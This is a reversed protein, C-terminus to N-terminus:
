RRGKAAMAALIRRRTVGIVRGTRGTTRTKQGRVKLGLAHRVGKWTKIKQMHEIDSKITLTLDPGVIHHNKGTERDKQRNLLWSPIGHEAPNKITEEIRSIESDSLDGIRMNPDLKTVKIIAHALHKDVGRIKIIGYALKKSGDINTGLIRTIHRFEKSM